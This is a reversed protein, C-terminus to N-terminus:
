LEVVFDNLYDALPKRAELAVVEEDLRLPHRPPMVLPQDDMVKETSDDALVHDLVDEDLLRIRGAAARGASSAVDFEEEIVPSLLWEHRDLEGGGGVSEPVGHNAGVIPEVLSRFVLDRDERAASEQELRAVQAPETRQRAPERDVPREEELDAVGAIKLARA